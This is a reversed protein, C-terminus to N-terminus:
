LIFGSENLNTNNNDNNTNNTNNVINNSNDVNRFLIEQQLKTKTFEDKIVINDTNKISEELLVKTKSTPLLNITNECSLYVTELNEGLINNFNHASSYIPQYLRVNFYDDLDKITATEKDFLRINILDDKQYGKVYINTIKTIIIMYGLENEFLDIIKMLVDSDLYHYPLYGSDIILEDREYINFYYIYDRFFREINQKLLKFKVESEDVKLSRLTNVDILM